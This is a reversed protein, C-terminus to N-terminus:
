GSSMDSHVTVPMLSVQVALQRSRSQIPVAIGAWDRERCTAICTEDIGSVTSVTIHAGMIPSIGGSVHQATSLYLYVTNQQM